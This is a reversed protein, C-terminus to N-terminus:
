RLELPEDYRQLIQGAILAAIRLYFSVTVHFDDDHLATVRFGDAEDGIGDVGHFRVDGPFFGSGACVGFFETHALAGRRIIGRTRQVLMKRDEPPVLHESAVEAPATGGPPCCRRRPTLHLM